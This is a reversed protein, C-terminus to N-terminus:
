AVLSQIQNKVEDWFTELEKVKTVIEEKTLKQERAKELLTLKAIGKKIKFQRFGTLLKHARESVVHYFEPDESLAKKIDWIGRDSNEVFTKIVSNLFEQDNGTFSKVGDLSFLQDNEEDKPAMVKTDAVKSRKLNFIEALKEMIQKQTFPKAMVWINDKKNAEKLESNVMDATLFLVPTTLKKENRIINLLQLGDVKPMHLDVLFLDYKVHEIAQMAPESSSIVDLREVRDHLIGDILQCIMEDDDVAMIKKDKFLYTVGEMPDAQVVECKIYPIDFTFTSGENPKSDLHISGGMAEIIQRSISLGLGTGSYKRSLSINVQNFMKFVSKQKDKPIGIGTDEVTFVLKDKRINVDYYVSGKSTFKLANGILNILVQKLRLNDSEFGTLDPDINYSFTLGSKQAEFEFLQFLEDMLAKADIRDKYFAINGSELMSSDLVNNILGNLHEASLLIRESVLLNEKKSLMGSLQESFGIISTLPTRIEHSMHAVFQEKVRLLRDVREKARIIDNKLKQSRTIDRSIWFIFFLMMIVATGVLLLIRDIMESRLVELESRKNENRKITTDHLNTVINKIQDTLRRDLQILEDEHKQVIINLREERKEAREIRSKLEGINENPRTEQIVTSDVKRSVVAELEVLPEQKKKSGGFLEGMRKFFGKKEDEPQQQIVLVTDEVIVDQQASDVQLSTYTFQTVEYNLSDPISAIIKEASEAYLKKLNMKTLQDMLEKKQFYLREIEKIGGQSVTDPFLLNLYNLVALVSDHHQLYQEHYEKKGTIGYVRSLGETEIIEFILQNLYTFEYEHSYEENQVKIISIVSFYTISFIVIAIAVIIIFGIAVKTQIWKEPLIKNSM